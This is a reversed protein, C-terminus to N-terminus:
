KANRDGRHDVGMPDDARRAQFRMTFMGDLKNELRDMAHHFEDKTLFDTAVMHDLEGVRVRLQDIASWMTRLIWGALSGVVILAVNFAQQFSVGDM